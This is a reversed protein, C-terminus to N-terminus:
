VDRGGAGSAARVSQDTLAGLVETLRAYHEGAGDLIAGAIPPYAARKLRELGSPILFARVFKIVDRSTWFLSARGIRDYVLRTKTQGAYAVTSVGYSMAVMGVHLRSTILVDLAALERCAAEIDVLTSCTANANRSRPRYAQFADDKGPQNDIFVFDVDQRLKV